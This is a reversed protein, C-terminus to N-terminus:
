SKTWQDIDRKYLLLKDVSSFISTLFRRREALLLNVYDSERWPLSSQKVNNETYQWENYVQWTHQYAERSRERGKSVEFHFCTETCQLLFMCYSSIQGCGRWCMACQRDMRVNRKAKIDIQRDMGSPSSLLVKLDHSMIIYFHFLRKFNCDFCVLIYNLALPLLISYKRKWTLSHEFFFSRFIGWDAQLRNFYLCWFTSHHQLLALCVASLMNLTGASYVLFYFFSFMVLDCLADAVQKVLVPTETNTLLPKLHKNCTFHM